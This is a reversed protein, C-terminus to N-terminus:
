HGTQSPGSEDENEPIVQMVRTLSRMKRFHNAHSSDIEDQNTPIVQLVRTPNTRMKAPIVRTVLNMGTM